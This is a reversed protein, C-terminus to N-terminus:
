PKFLQDGTVYNLIEASYQNKVVGNSTVLVAEVYKRAPTYQRFVNLKTKMKKLSAATLTYGEPAYKMECVDVVNDARDILLDIQVGPHYENGKIQWSFINSMIGAIGLAAKIQRTHLLCVREFSLGCWTHYAPTRMLRM